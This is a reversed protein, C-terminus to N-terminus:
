SQDELHIREGDLSRDALHSERLFSVSAHFFAGIPIAALVHGGVGCRQEQLGRDSILAHEGLAILKLNPAHADDVRNVADRRPAAFLVQDRGVDGARGCM